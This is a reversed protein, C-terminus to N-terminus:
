IFMYEFGPISFRLLDIGSLWTAVSYLTGTIKWKITSFAVYFFRFM